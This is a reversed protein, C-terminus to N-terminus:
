VLWYISGYSFRVVYIAINRGLIISVARAKQQIASWLPPFLFAMFHSVNDAAVYVLLLSVFTRLKVLLQLPHLDVTLDHVM